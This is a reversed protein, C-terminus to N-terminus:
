KGFNTISLIRREAFYKSHNKWGFGLSLISQKLNFFNDLSVEEALGSNM